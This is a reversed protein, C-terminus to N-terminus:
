NMNNGTNSQNSGAVNGRQAATIKQGLLTNDATTNQNLSNPGQALFKDFDNLAGLMAQKETSKTFQGAVRRMDALSKKTKELAPSPTFSMNQNQSSHIGAQSELYDKFRM